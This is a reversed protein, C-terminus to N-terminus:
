APVTSLDHFSALATLARSFFPEDFSLLEHVPIQGQECWLEVALKVLLYDGSSMGRASKIIEDAPGRLRPFQTDFLFTLIRSENGVLTSIIKFLRRDSRTVQTWCEM